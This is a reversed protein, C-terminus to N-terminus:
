HTLPQSLPNSNRSHGQTTRVASVEKNINQALAVHLSLLFPPPRTTGENYSGACHSALKVVTRHLAAPMACRSVHRHM